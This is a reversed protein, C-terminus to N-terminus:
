LGSAIILPGGRGGHCCPLPPFFDPPLRTLPPPPGDGCVADRCTLGFGPVGCGFPPSVPDVAPEALPCSITSFTDREMDPMPDPINPEGARKTRLWDDCLDTTCMSSASSVFAAIVIALTSVELLDLNGRCETELPGKVIVM